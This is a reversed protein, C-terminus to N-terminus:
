RELEEKLIWAPAELRVAGGATYDPWRGTSLCRAWCECARAWRVRGLEALAGDPRALTVAVRRPSDAPLEEVFAWVFDVRGALDPRVNEVASLYAAAQLDYGYEVVHSSCAKPHASRCTKLDLVRGAAAVVEPADLAVNDMMGRCLVPGAPTDETWVAVQENRVLDPPGSLTVGLELLRERIAAAVQRADDLERSLMPTKGKAIAADRAEQAIKTRYNEAGIIEIQEIGTDLVLAHIATGRGQDPTSESAVGGLKPHRLWAHYASQRVMTAAVSASLTPVDAVKDAHYDAASMQLFAPQM